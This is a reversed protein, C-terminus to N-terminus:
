NFLLLKYLYFNAIAQLGKYENTDGQPARVGSGSILLWACYTFFLSRNEEAEIEMMYMLKMIDM